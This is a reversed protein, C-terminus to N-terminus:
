HEPGASRLSAVDHEVQVAGVGKAHQPPVAHLVSAAEIQESRSSPIQGFGVSIGVLRGVSTGVGRGVTGGVKCGVLRGVKGGVLRGVKCGV